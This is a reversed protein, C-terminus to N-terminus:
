PAFPEPVQKPAPAKNAPEPTESPKSPATEVPILDREKFVVVATRPLWAPTEPKCEPCALNFAIQYEWEDGEWAASIVTGQCNKVSVVQALKYRPNTRARHCATLFFLSMVCLLICLQAAENEMIRKLNM